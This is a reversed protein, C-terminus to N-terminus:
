STAIFSERKPQSPMGIPVVIKRVLYESRLGFQGIDRRKLLETTTIDTETTVTNTGGTPPKTALDDWRMCAWLVQVMLSVHDILENGKHPWHLESLDVTDHECLQIAVSSHVSSTRVLTCYGTAITSVRLQVAVAGLTPVNQTRWRWCTRFTPRPCPYPWSVNNMKCDYKFGPTERKGSRRALKRAEARELVLLSRRGGNKVMFKQCGPLIKGKASKSQKSLANRARFRILNCKQRTDGILKLKEELDAVSSATLQIKSGQILNHVAQGVASNQIALLNAATAIANSKAAAAAPAASVSGGVISKAPQASAVNANNTAPIVKPILKPKGVAGAALSTTTAMSVPVQELVVVEGADTEM